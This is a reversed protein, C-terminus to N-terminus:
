KLVMTVRIYDISFTPLITMTVSVEGAIEQARTATVELQYGTLMEDQVMRTLFADLTAKLAGRVRSNNLRGLYSNAGSRVGYKAYDVIRRIPINSFPTGVGATTVGKIVRFGEKDAIAVVNRQILQQQQGRNFALTLGPVNVPMNTLSAQPAAGSIVGTIAAAAYAPPLSPGSPFAIGPAVLVLRDSAMSHGLFGDVSSGPAGIVGIRELDTDATANLHNVLTDGMAASNQGALHVINVIMNSISDLATGYDDATGAAGNNGATNTGTGMFGSVGAKPLKQGNTADAAATALQSSGNIQDALLTGGPVTYREVTASYMLSVRVCAGRDVVYNAMLRDGNANVPAENSAFTLTGDWSTILVEGPQPAAHDVAYTAEVQQSPKPATGFTIEGTDTAIRIEAAAPATGAGYLINPDKYEAVKAGGADLVRVYNVAPVSVVPTNALFFRGSANPVVLERKIVRKMVVKFSKTAKTIGQQVRIQNQPSEMIRSFRLKNFSDTLTEGQIRCDETAKETVVQMDNAWTGPTKATLTVVTEGKDSLLAYTASAKSSGAARVAIVTSAGNGYILQLARVLTLPNSGNEPQNFDDPLGFIDRANAFGSLTIPSNVPGSAATGVVGVIGTAIRGASILGEARVDIYTGPIIMEAM